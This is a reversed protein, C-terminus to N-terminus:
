SSPEPNDGKAKPPLQAGQPNALSEPEYDLDARSAKAEGDQRDIGDEPTGSSPQNQETSSLLSGTDRPNPTTM